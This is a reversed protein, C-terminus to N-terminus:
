TTNPHQLLIKQHFGPFSYYYNINILDSIYPHQLLILRSVLSTAILNKGTFLSLGFILRSVLSTAIIFLGLSINNYQFHGHDILILGPYLASFYFLNRFKELSWEFFLCLSKYYIESSIKLKFNLKSKPQIIIQLEFKKIQINCYM